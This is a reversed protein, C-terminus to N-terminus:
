VEFLNFLGATNDFIFLGEKFLTSDEKFLYFPKFDVVKISKIIKKLVLCINRLVNNKLFM